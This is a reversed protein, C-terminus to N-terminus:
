PVALEQHLRDLGRSVRVRASGESCGLRSAIEAYPLQETVRMMLARVAPSLSGVAAPLAELLPRLDIAAEIDEFDGADVVPTTVQLRQRARTEVRGRRLWQLYLHNAIGYLWGRGTGRRPRFRHLGDLAATFTEAALDASVEACSTRKYFYALIADINRDYFTGFDAPHRRASLLLSGDLDEEGTAGPDPPSGRGVSQTM